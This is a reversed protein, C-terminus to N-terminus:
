KLGDHGFCFHAAHPTVAPEFVNIIGPKERLELLNSFNIHVALARALGAQVIGLHPIEQPRQEGIVDLGIVDIADHPSRLALPREVVDDARAVASERAM